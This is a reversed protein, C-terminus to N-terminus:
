ASEKKALSMLVARSNGPNTDFYFREEGKEDDSRSFDYYIGFGFQEILEKQRAMCAEHDDQNRAPMWYSSREQLQERTDFGDRDRVAVEFIAIHTESEATIRTNM